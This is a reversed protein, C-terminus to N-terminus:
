KPMDKKSPTVPRIRARFISVPPRTLAMIKPDTPAQTPAPKPSPMDVALPTPNTTTIGTLEIKPAAVPAKPPQLMPSPHSLAMMGEEEGDGGDLEGEGTPFADVGAGVGAEAGVGGGVGAGGIFCSWTIQYTITETTPAITKNKMHQM